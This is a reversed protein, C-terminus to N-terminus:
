EFMQYMIANGIENNKKSGQEYISCSFTNRYRKRLLFRMELIWASFCTFGQCVISVSFFCVVCRYSFSEKLSKGEEKARSQKVLFILGVLLISWWVAFLREDFILFLLKRTKEYNEWITRKLFGDFTSTILNRQGFYFITLPMLLFNILPGPWAFTMMVRWLIRVFDVNWKFLRRAFRGFLFIM